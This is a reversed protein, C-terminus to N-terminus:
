GAEAKRSRSGAQNNDASAKSWGLVVKGPFRHGFEGFHIENEIFRGPDSDLFHKGFSIAYAGLSVPNLGKKWFTGLGKGIAISGRGADEHDM